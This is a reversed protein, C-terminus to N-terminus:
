KKHWYPIKPEAAMKMKRFSNETAVAEDMAKGFDQWTKQSAALIQHVTELKTSETCTELRSLHTRSIGCLNAMKEQSLHLDARWRILIERLAKRTISSDEM